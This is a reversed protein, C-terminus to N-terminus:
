KIFNEMILDGHNFEKSASFKHRVYLHTHCSIYHPILIIWFQFSTIRYKQEQLGNKTIKQIILQLCGSKDLCAWIM